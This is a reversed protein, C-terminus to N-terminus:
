RFKSSIWIAAAAEQAKLLFFFSYADSLKSTKEGGKKKTLLWMLAVIDLIKLKKCCPLSEVVLIFMLNEFGSNLM